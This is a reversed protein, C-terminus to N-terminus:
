IFLTKFFLIESLSTLANKFLLIIEGNGCFNVL